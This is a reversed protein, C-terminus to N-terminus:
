NFMIVGFYFIIVVSVVGINKLYISVKDDYM